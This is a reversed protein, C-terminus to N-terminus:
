LIAAFSSIHDKRAKSLLHEFHTGRILQKHLILVQLWHVTNYPVTNRHLTVGSM